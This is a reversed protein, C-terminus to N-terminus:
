RYFNILWSKAYVFGAVTLKIFKCVGLNAEIALNGQLNEVNTSGCYNGNTDFDKKTLILTDM